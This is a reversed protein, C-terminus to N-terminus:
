KEVILPKLPEIEVGATLKSADADNTLALKDGHLDCLNSDDPTCYL